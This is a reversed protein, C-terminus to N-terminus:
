RRQRLMIKWGVASLEGAGFVFYPYGWGLDGAGDGDRGGWRRSRPRRMWIWFREGAVRKEAAVPSSRCWVGRSVLEAGGVRWLFHGARDNTLLSWVPRACGRRYSLARLGRTGEVWAALRRCRRSGVGRRGAVGGSAYRRLSRRRSCSGAQRFSSGVDSTKVRSDWNGERWVVAHPLACCGARPLVDDEMIGVPLATRLLEGRVIVLPAVLCGGFDSPCLLQPCKGCAAFAFNRAAAAVSMAALVADAPVPCGDGDLHLGLDRPDALRTEWKEWM